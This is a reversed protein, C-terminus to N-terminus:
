DVREMLEDEGSVRRYHARIYTQADQPLHDFYYESLLLHRVNNKELSESIKPFRALISKPINGIFHGAPVPYALPRFLLNPFVAEDPGIVQWYHEYKAVLADSRFASRAFNGKISVWIVATLVAILIGAGAAHLHTNLLKVQTILTAVAVAAFLAFLWTVPLYHQIFVSEFYFLLLWQGILTGVLGLKIASTGEFKQRLTQSVVQYIGASALLPLIWAYIWTLPKGGLGYIFSNGPLYFQGVPVPYEFVGTYATVAEVFVERIMEAFTGRAVFYLSFVITTAIMGTFITKLDNRKKKILCYLIYMGFIAFLGPIVKMLVLFSTVLAAGALFIFGQSKREVGWTLFLVGLTFVAIMLNDQRIQMGSFITFPDLILMLIFLLASRKGFLTKAIITGAGVRVFFLVIMLIRAFGISTFSFGFVYFVPLIFWQFLPTYVTTYINAFPEYGRAILFALQINFIEDNDLQYNFGSLFISYLLYLLLPLALILLPRRM